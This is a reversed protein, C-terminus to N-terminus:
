RQFGDSTVFNAAANGAASAALFFAEDENVSRGMTTAGLGHEVCHSLGPWGDVQHFLHKENIGSNILQYKIYNMQDENKLLPFVINVPILVVYKLVTITQHSLGYHRKRSDAFSIRPVGVPIGGLSHVANLIQGQELATTGWPIGTGVIGPGMCVVIVDAKQIHRAALLGSFINVAELDGGFAHGITITGCLFGAEKLLFVIESLYLPLAAGDTMIYSIRLNPKNQIIGSVIYPLMSHLTGVVVPVTKIDGGQEILLRAPSDEEEVSLVKIQMPTYRLKMIHGPGKLRLEPRTMNVMVFHWGGTGLGLDVATTNVQVRDGVQIVGTLFDYNIAKGQGQAFSVIVRTLGKRHGIIETVTGVSCSIMIGEGNEQNTQSYGAM